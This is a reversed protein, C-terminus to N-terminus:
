MEVVLSGIDELNQRSSLMLNAAALFSNKWIPFSLM